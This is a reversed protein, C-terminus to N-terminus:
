RKWFAGQKKISQTKLCQNKEISFYSCWFNLSKKNFNSLRQLFIEKMKEKGYFGHAWRFDDLDGRELIREVIFVENKKADLKDRDVDWFLNQKELTQM